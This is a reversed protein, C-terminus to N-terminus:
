LAAWRVKAVQPLKQNIEVDNQCSESLNKSAASPPTFHTTLKDFKDNPRSPIEFTEVHLRKFGAVHQRLKIPWKFAM